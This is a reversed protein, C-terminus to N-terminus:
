PVRECTCNPSMGEFLGPEVRLFSSHYISCYAFSTGKCEPNCPAQTAGYHATERTPVTFGCKTPEDFVGQCKIGNTSRKRCYEQCYERGNQQLDRLFQPRLEDVQNQPVCQYSIGQLLVRGSCPDDSTTDTPNVPTIEADRSCLIYDKALVPKSVLMAAITTLLLVM